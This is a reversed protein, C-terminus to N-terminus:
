TTDTCENLWNLIDQPETLKEPMTIYEDKVLDKMKTLHFDFGEESQKKNVNIGM